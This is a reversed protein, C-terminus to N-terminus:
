VEVKMGLVLNPPFRDVAEVRRAEVKVGATMQMKAVFKKSKSERNRHRHHYRRRGGRSTLLEGKEEGGVLWSCGSGRSAELGPGVAEVASIFLDCPRSVTRIDYTYGFWQRDKYHCKLRAM